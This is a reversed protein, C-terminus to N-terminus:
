LGLGIVEVSIFSPLFDQKPMLTTNQALQRSAEEAVSKSADSVNSAALAGSL